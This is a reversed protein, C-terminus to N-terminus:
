YSATLASTIQTSIQSNVYAKIGGANAVASDSDYTNKVMLGAIQSTVYAKIGGATKVATDSDYDSKKMDGSGAGGEPAFIDTGTGDVTITAIKDGTTQVQTVSVTTKANWTTKETDTVLRHTTDDTLDALETPITTSDPLAGVDDADLVVAGTQGNVSAVAGITNGDYTPSGSSEGFKDLVTKNSHEHKKSVADALNTETQQYTDLLSKNSHEHKKSVADSLNANTQNYTELLELNSHEHKKSVADALDSETQEYTDLLEKNPHTHMEEECETVVVLAHSVSSSINNFLAQVTNGRRGHPPVVGISASATTDELEDILNNVAPTIVEKAPKDIMDKIAHAAMTESPRDTLKLAGYKNLESIDIKTFAM